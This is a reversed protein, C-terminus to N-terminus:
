SGGLAVAPRLADPLVFRDDRILIRGQEALDGLTRCVASRSGGVLGALHTHTVRLAILTGGPVPRGFDHALIELALLLRDGLHLLPMRCRDYLHRSLARWSYAMLRLLRDTPLRALVTALLPTGIVAVWSDVHAVARLAPTRVVGPSGTPLRVFQGPPVLQVIIGQGGPVLCEVRGAGDLVLIVVDGAPWSGCLRRDAGVLLTQSGCVLLDIVEPTLGIRPAIRELVQRLLPKM